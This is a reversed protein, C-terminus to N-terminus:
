SPEVEDDEARRKGDADIVIAGISKLMPIPCVAHVDDGSNAFFVGNGGDIGGGDVLM